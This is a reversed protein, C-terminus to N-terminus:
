SFGAPSASAVGGGVCAKCRDVGDNPGLGDERTAPPLALSLGDRRCGQAEGFAAARAPDLDTAAVLRIGPHTLIDRAYGGAINGTGVSAALATSFAQFPSLLGVSGERERARMARIADPLLRLQVVRFRITLFVGVGLLLGVVYPMFLADALTQIM